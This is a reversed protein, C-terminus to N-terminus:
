DVSSVGSHDASHVVSLEVLHDVSYAVTMAVM